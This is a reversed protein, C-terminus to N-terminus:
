TSARVLLKKPRRVFQCTPQGEKSPTPRPNGDPIYALGDPHAAGKGLSGSHLEIRVGESVLLGWSHLSRGGLKAM